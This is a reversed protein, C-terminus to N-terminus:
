INLSSIDIMNTYMREFSFIALIFFFCVGQLNQQLLEPSLWNLNKETTGPFCNITRQWKGNKVMPCAYRM